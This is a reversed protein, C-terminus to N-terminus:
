PCCRRPRVGETGLIPGGMDTTHATDGPNIENTTTPTGPMHWVYFPGADVPQETQLLLIVFTSALALVVLVLLLAWWDRRSRFKYAQIFQFWGGGEESPPSRDAM